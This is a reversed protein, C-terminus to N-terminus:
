LLINSAGRNATRSPPYMLMSYMGAENNSTAQQQSLFHFFSVLFSLLTEQFNRRTELFNRSLKPTEGVLGFRKPNPNENQIEEIICFRHV